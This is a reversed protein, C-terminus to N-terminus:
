NQCKPCYYTGRQGLMIKIVKTKKCLNCIKQYFVLLSKVGQGKEGSTDTYGGQFTNGGLDVSSSIVDNIGQYILPMESKKIDKCLRMPLIKARACIESAMYNGIGPFLKQDLLTVKIYKNPYQIIREKLLDLTFHKSLIDFGWQKKFKPVSNKDIFLIRGFRRPDVYGFSKGNELKIVLHTHKPFIEPLSSWIRWSGSMGLHSCLIHKEKTIFLLKKGHRKIKSLVQNRLDFERLKIIKQAHEFELISIVNSELLLEHSLQKRITEVEPLEPM